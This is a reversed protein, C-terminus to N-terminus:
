ACLDIYHSDGWIRCSDRFKVQIIRARWSRTRAYVADASYQEPRWTAAGGALRSTCPSLDAPQWDEGLPWCVYSCVEVADHGQLSAGKTSDQFKREFASIRNSQSLLSTRAHRMRVASRVRVPTFSKGWRWMRAFLVRGTDLVLCPPAIAGGGCKKM